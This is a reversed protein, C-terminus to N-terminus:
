TRTLAAIREALSAASAAVWAEGKSATALTADGMVGQPALDRTTWCLTLAAGEARLEGGDGLPASYYRIARAQRVLAPALGLMLSTEWEGAHFGEAAEQPHQPAKFASQLMGLRVGPLHQLERILPVVVASNGGHTNFIAIRRFGLRYLQEIQTRLLLAFSRGSLSLTGPWDAHENSKGVLLPPAVFAPVSLPTLSLAQALLGQGILADTGLPLHPGHQEIAGTPIIALAGSRAAASHLEERTLGGLYRAGFPRWLPAPESGAEAARLP